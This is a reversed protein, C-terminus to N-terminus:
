NNKRFVRQTAIFFIITCDSLPENINVLVLSANILIDSVIMAIFNIRKLVYHQKDIVLLSMGYKAYLASCVQM